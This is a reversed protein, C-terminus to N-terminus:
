VQDKQPTLHFETLRQASSIGFDNKLRLKHGSWDAVM